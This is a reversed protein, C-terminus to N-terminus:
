DGDKSVDKFFEKEDGNSDDEATTVGGGVEAQRRFEPSMESGIALEAGLVAESRQSLLSTENGIESRLFAGLKGWGNSVGLMLADRGLKETTTVVRGKNVVIADRSNSRADGLMEVVTNLSRVDDVARGFLITTGAADIGLCPIREDAVNSFEEAELDVSARQVDGPGDGFPLTEAEQDILEEGLWWSTTCRDVVSPDETGHAVGSEKSRESDVEGNAHLQVEVGSDAGIWGLRTTEPATSTSNADGLESIPVDTEESLSERIIRVVGVPTTVNTEEDITFGISVPEAVGGITTEAAPAGSKVEHPAERTLIEDGGAKRHLRNIGGGTFRITLRFAFM